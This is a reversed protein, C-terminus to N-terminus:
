RLILVYVDYLAHTYVAHALSRFYFILGFLAGALARYVFAELTWPEGMAGVHHAASFLVSSIAFALVMAAVHRLGFVRLIAAGGALAGLRFVLEEHVGAGVSIILNTLPGVALKPEIGLLRQMVFIILTGLTLAYIGSELLMALFNRRPALRHKRMIAVAVLFIVALAAHVLLYTTKDYDVLALVNRSVFDVGNMTPTFIVGVEYLLFLPFIALLSAGLDGHGFVAALPPGGARTAPVPRQPNM